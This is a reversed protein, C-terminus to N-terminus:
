PIPEFPRFRRNRRLSCRSTRSYYTSQHFRNSFSRRYFGADMELNTHCMFEQSLTERGTSDTIDVQYGVLWLLEPEPTEGQFLVVRDESAPGMM